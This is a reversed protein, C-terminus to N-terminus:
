KLFRRQEETEIYESIPEKEFLYPWVIRVNELLIKESIKKTM